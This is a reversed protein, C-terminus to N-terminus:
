QILAMVELLSGQKMGLLREMNYVFGAAKKAMEAEPLENMGDFVVTSYVMLTEAAEEPYDTAFCGERIGDRIIGAALPTLAALMSGLIKQHMLANQPKHAYDAIEDGVASDVKLSAVFAVLKQPATPMVSLAARVNTVVGQIIRDILADLIEEKSKFHYYLTGRAIGVRDLIDNTSTSDYGKRTFMEAAVDLIENRRAEAEKSIGVADGEKKVSLKDTDQNYLVGDKIDLAIKNLDTIKKRSLNFKVEMLTDVSHFLAAAGGYGKEECKGIQM